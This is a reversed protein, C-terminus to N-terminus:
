DKPVWSGMGKIGAFLTFGSTEKLTDGCPECESFRSDNTTPAYLSWPRGIVPQMVISYGRDTPFKLNRLRISHRAYEWGAKTWQILRKTYQWTEECDGKPYGPWVKIIGAKLTKHSLVYAKTVGWNDGCIASLLGFLTYNVEWRDHKVGHVTVCRKCCDSKPQCNKSFVPTVLKGIDWKLRAKPNGCLTYTWQNKGPKIRQWLSEHGGKFRSVAMKEARKLTKTLLQAV